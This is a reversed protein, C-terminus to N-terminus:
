SLILTLQLFLLLFISFFLSQCFSISPHFTLSTLSISPPPSSFCFHYLSPFPPSCSFYVFSFHPLLACSSLYLPLFLRRPKFVRHAMSTETILSIFIIVVESSLFTVKIRSRVEKPRLEDAFYFGGSLMRKSFAVVHPAHRLSFHEHAWYKGSM